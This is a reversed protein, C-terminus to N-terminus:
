SVRRVVQEVHRVVTGWASVALTGSGGDLIQADGALEALGTTPWQARREALLACLGSFRRHVVPDRRERDGTLLEASHSLMCLVSRGQREAARMADAMECLSASGLQLPRLRGLRDRYVSQPVELVGDSEWPTDDALGPIMPGYPGAPNHSSDVRLGCGAVAGLTGPGASFAGARFAAIPPAGAAELLEIGRRIVDAQVTEDLDSIRMAPKGFPKLEASRGLWETHPHVQVEQGFEVIMGVVEELSDQGMVTAFLPEVFFVGKLEHDRLMELQFRLGCDGQRTRGIIFQRFARRMEQVSLRWSRPWLEVDTALLIRM